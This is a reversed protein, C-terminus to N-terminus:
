RLVRARVVAPPQWTFTLLVSDRPALSATEFKGHPGVAGLPAHRWVDRVRTAAVAAAPVGLDLALDVVLSAHTADGGAGDNFVFVAQSTPSLPKAWMQLSAGAGARRVFRGPHGAWAQNISIAEPNGAVAWVRANQTENTM